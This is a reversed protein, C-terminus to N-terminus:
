FTYDVTETDGPGCDVGPPAQLYQEVHLLGHAVVPPQDLASLSTVSLMFNGAPVSQAGASLECNMDTEGIAKWNTVTAPSFTGAMPMPGLDISASFASPPNDSMAALALMWDGASDGSAAQTMVGCGSKEGVSDNFNGAFDVHCQDGGGCGGAAIAVLALAIAIMRTATM